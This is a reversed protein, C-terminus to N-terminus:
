GAAQLETSVRKTWSDARSVTKGETAAARTALPTSSRRSALLLAAREDVM